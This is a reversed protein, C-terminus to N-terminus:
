RGGRVARVSGDASKENAGLSGGGSGFQVIWAADPLLASTTSSWYFAAATPDFIPDVICPSISCPFPEFLLTQLEVSNPIRWDRYGAFGVGGVNPDETADGNLRALFDFFVSGDPDRVDNDDFNSWTYRNDVDHPNSYNEMGDEGDKMEWMLGTEHDCITGDGNDVFREPSNPPCAVLADISHLHKDKKGHKDQKGDHRQERKHREWKSDERDDSAFSLSATSIMAFSLILSTLLNRM